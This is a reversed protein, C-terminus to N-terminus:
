ITYDRTSNVEVASPSITVEGSGARQRVTGKQDDARSALTVTADGDVATGVNWLQGTGPPTGTGPDGVAINEYFVRVEDGKHM